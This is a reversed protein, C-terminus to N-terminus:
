PAKRKAGRSVFAAKTEAYLLHNAAVRCSLGRQPTGGFGFRFDLPQPGKIIGSKKVRQPVGQKLANGQKKRPLAGGWLSM